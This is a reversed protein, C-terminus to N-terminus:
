TELMYHPNGISISDVKISDKRQLQNYIKTIFCNSTGSFIWSCRIILYNDMIKQIPTLDGLLKSKGYNNQPNPNDLWLIPKRKGDFVYDTSFSYSFIIKTVYKPLNKSM